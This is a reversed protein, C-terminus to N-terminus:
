DPDIMLRIGARTTALDDLEAAERRRQDTLWQLRRREKLTEVARRATTAARLDARSSELRRYLGALSIALRQARAQASLSSAAQLRVSRPDIASQPSAPALADRLDAKHASLERQCASLQSEIELREREIRAVALQRDRERSRRLDLLAQLEFTFRPM